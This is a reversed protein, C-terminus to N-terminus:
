MSEQYKLQTRTQLKRIRQDEKRWTEINTMKRNSACFLQVLWNVFFFPNKQSMTESTEAQTPSTGNRKPGDHALVEGDLICPPAVVAWRTTAQCSFLLFLSPPRIGTLSMGGTGVKRGLSGGGLTEVGKWFWWLSLGPRYCMFRRPDNVASWLLRRTELVGCRGVEVAMHFVTTEGPRQGM